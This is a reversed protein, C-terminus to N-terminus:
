AAAGAWIRADYGFAALREAREDTIAAHPNALQDGYHDAKFVESTLVQVGDFGCVELVSGIYRHVRGDPLRQKCM